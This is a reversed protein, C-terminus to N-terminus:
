NCVPADAAAVERRVAVGKPVVYTARVVFPADTLNRAMIPTTGSEVFSQGASHTEISCGVQATVTGSEVVVLVFGPHTHWGSSGGPAFTFTQVVVDTDSKTQFKLRDVNLHVKGALTGRVQGTTTVGSSATALATVGFIGAAAVGIAAILLGKRRNM